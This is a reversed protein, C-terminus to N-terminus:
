FTYRVALQVIRRGFKNDTGLKGFDPNSQVGNTFRLQLDTDFPTAIPHNLVNYGAIRLQLKQGKSGISFNKFLSLDQNWYANGKIYPFIYNGNVGVSPAAFCAPNFMYGSPVNDRPDCTVVPQATLQPSGTIQVAGITTGDALTGSMSFNRNGLVSQLPAGSVYTTIGAIQWNGLIANMLGNDKFEPLLWSYAGSAVHTRDNPLIGYSYQRPDFQYESLGSNGNGQLNGWVGLSKSFTYSATFNFRGRQRSLLTQFSHYNSYLSHRYVQLDGYNPLPRYLQSNGNPDNLMAGAPVANLNAASENRLNEQKNGVYGLEINMSWPLKQNVTMSWSYGIPQKNDNIDIAQGNFPVNSSGQGNYDSLNQPGCCFAVTRQGLSYAILGSYISQPEHYRYMGFGGRLVTEGSGKVDWAVGVRPTVFFWSGEVGGLPVNPDKKTYVIGPTESNPANPDYKTEDWAAVGVGSRDKWPGLYSLRLGLDLTVRPKVKWSDQIYGEFLNYDMDRILNKSSDDYETVRGLLMDALTNGTSNGGWTANEIFQNSWSNGPQNNNVWEWYVGAKATHTGWVKTLNDSASVQWKKAYLVPDFGGPSYTQPGGSGWGSADAGPILDNAENFLGQYPYGLASRSVKQPDDLVNPFNIYTVAVITENTLSPDFVHTLSATVSDSQNKASTTSPYPTQYTGNRWWLGIAFPQTERQINYRMFLKTSESINVDVRALGQWGNQDITLNDVYNYGGTVAPDANPMPYENLLIQGGKDIMNSPIIGGPFGNPVTNVQSGTLGLSAAQSFNGNRMDATPVWSRVFGTDLTQGFYQFGAFFFVKDRNKNFNTGPILLPGSINFGPYNFKNKPRDASVKNGYWENSNLHYDRLYYFLSGHFDRGGSKSVVSMAVPGKAHEASFTSQLVKFEQVFETNPNVSTACNCGPDAGPAGDITIDLAETPAGNASYNGVASQKGGDGNGNIGYIEGSYAPRNSTGTNSNTMGPLIRLVEAASTGVIPINEIQEATLTASKEASNLPTLAVDSTVSVTEAMTAVKLAVQRLSRSDGGRLEIGTVEYTRFGQLTIVLTYKGAPLASFAFFGDANTVSRRVGKSGENTATVDAGPIVGGQEDVVTGSLEGSLRQAYSVGPLALLAVLVPLAILAFRRATGISAILRM